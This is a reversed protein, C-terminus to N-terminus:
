LCTQVRNVVLTDSSARLPTRCLFSFLMKALVVHVNPFTYIGVQTDNQIRIMKGREREYTWCVNSALAALKPPGGGGLKTPGPLYQVRTHYSEIAKLYM